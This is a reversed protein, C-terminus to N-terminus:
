KYSIEIDGSINISGSHEQAQKDKLGLDRSIITSNFFGAAAGSFKQNYIVDEVHTIILSFDKDIESEKVKLSKKFDRFYLNNVGLYICLGQITYPATKEKYVEIADKGVFDHEKLPNNNVHEFYEYCLKKLLEPDKFIRDRGHKTRKTWFNNGKPAGM